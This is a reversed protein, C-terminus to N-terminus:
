LILKRVKAILEETRIPKNLIEDAGADWAQKIKQDSDFISLIIIKAQRTKSDNKIKSCVEL